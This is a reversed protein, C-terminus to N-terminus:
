LKLPESPVRRVFMLNFKSGNSHGQGKVCCYCMKLTHKPKHHDVLLSLEAFFKEKKYLFLCVFLFNDLLYGRFLEDKQVGVQYPPADDPSPTMYLFQSAIKLTLTM